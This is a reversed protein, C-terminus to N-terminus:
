QAASQESDAIATEEAVTLRLGDRGLVYVQAGVHIPGGGSTASWSEGAIQVIGVPDIDSTVVGRANYLRSMVSRTPTRRAARVGRIGGFLALASVLATGAFAGAISATFAHGRSSAVGVGVLGLVGVAATVLFGHPGVHLSLLAIGLVAALLILAALLM